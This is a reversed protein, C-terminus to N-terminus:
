DRQVQDSIYGGGAACGIAGGIYRGATQGGVQGAVAGAVCGVATDEAPGGGIEQIEEFELDRM